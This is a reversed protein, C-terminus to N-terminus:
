LRFVFAGGLSCADICHSGSSEHLYAPIKTKMSFNFNAAGFPLWSRCVTRFLDDGEVVLAKVDKLDAFTAPFNSVLAEEKM